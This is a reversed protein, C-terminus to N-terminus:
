LYNPKHIPNHKFLDKPLLTKKKETQERDRPIELHTRTLQKKGM